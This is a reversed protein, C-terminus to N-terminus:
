CGSPEPPSESKQCSSVRQRFENPKDEPILKYAGDSAGDEWRDQMESIIPSVIDCAFECLLEVEEVTMDKEDQRLLLVDGTNEGNWFWPGKGQAPGNDDLVMDVVEMINNENLVVNQGRDSLSPLGLHVFLAAAKPNYSSSKALPERAWILLSLPSTTM